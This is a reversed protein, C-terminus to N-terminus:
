TEGDSMAFRSVRLKTGLKGIVLERAHAEMLITWNPVKGLVEIAAYLSQITKSLAALRVKASLCYVEVAESRLARSTHLLALFGKLRRQLHEDLNQVITLSPPTLSTALDAFVLEYVRIRLEPLLKMLPFHQQSTKAIMKASTERATALSALPNKDHSPIKNPEMTQQETTLKHTRAHLPYRACRGNLYQTYRGRSLPSETSSKPILIDRPLGPKNSTPTTPSLWDSPRPLRSGAKLRSIPLLVEGPDLYLFGLVHWTGHYLSSVIDSIAPSYTLSAM